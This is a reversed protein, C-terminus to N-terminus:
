SVIVQMVVYNVKKHDTDYNMIESEEEGSSGYTFIDSEELDM